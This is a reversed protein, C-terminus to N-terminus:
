MGNLVMRDLNCYNEPFLGSAKRGFLRMHLRQTKIINSRFIYKIDDIKDRYLWVTAIYTSIVICLCNKNKVEIKPVDLYLMRLLSNTQIGCLYYIIKKVLGICDQVKHCYYFRHINSDENNTCHDCNPSDKVRIQHLRKNNPLIEHILKFMVNRTIVNIFKLNLNQWINGWDYAPYMLEIAPQCRPMLLEYILKSKILPFKKHDKCKKIIDVINEYYPTNVNSREIPARTVNFLYGVRHFMFYRILENSESMLFSRIITSALISKSKLYINVLGIGGNCKNNYLVERKIPNAGSGWIFYFIEKNIQIIYKIPLPYIHSVYWVKSAILCNVLVARQYLTFNRNVMLPIRNKIKTCITKWMNDLALDYNTSFVIGLTSFYELETKVGNVPWNM